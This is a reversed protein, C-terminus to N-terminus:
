DVIDAYLGGVPQESQAVAVKNADQAPKDIGAFTFSLTVLAVLAILLTIKTKM